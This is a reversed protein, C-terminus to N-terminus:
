REKSYHFSRGWVINNEGFGFHIKIYIIGWKTHELLEYGKKEPPKDLQIERIKTGKEELKEAIFDWAGSHTFYNETRPDKVKGFWWKTPYEPGEAVIYAKRRILVALHRKIAKLKEKQGVALGGYRM